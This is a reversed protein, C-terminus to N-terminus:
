ITSCRAGIVPWSLIICHSVSNRRRLIKCFSLMFHFCIKQNGWDMENVVFDNKLNSNWYVQLFPEQSCSVAKIKLWHFIFVWVFLCINNNIIIIKQYKRSLYLSIITAKCRSMKHLRFCIVTCSPLALTTIISVLHGFKSTSTHGKGTSTHGKGLCCASVASHYSSVSGSNRSLKFKFISVMLLSRSVKWSHM